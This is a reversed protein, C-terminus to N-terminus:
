PHAGLKGGREAKGRHVWLGNIRVMPPRQPVKRFLPGEPQEIVEVVYVISGVM